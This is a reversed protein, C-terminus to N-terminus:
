IWREFYVNSYGVGGRFALWNAWPRDEGMKIALWDEVVERAVRLNTKSPVNYSHWGYFGTHIIIDSITRGSRDCRNCVTIAANRQDAENDPYCEGNLMQALVYIEDSYSDVLAEFEAQRKAEEQAAIVEATLLQETLGIHIITRYHPEVPHTQKPMPVASINAAAILVALAAATLKTKMM